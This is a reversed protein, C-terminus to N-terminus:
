CEARSKIDYVFGMIFDVCVSGVDVVCVGVVVAECVASVAAYFDAGAFDVLVEMSMAAFTVASSQIQRTLQASKLRM